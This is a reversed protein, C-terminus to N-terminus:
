VECTGDDCVEGQLKPVLEKATQVYDTYIVDKSELTGLTDIWEM